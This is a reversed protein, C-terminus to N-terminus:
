QDGIWQQILNMRTSTIRTFANFSNWPHEGHVGNTHVGFIVDNASGSYVPSGSTGGFTDNKYFGKLEWLLRLRDHSKWQRGQPLRDIAYGQVTTEIDITDDMLPQIGFWGTRNGVDCDLKLAGLDFHRSELADAASVWGNLVYIKKARCIGFPAAGINRGPIIKFNTYQRGHVTGSHLCHAATLVTNKSVLAGTCVQEDGPITEFLIQVIARAPFQTTDQEFIREDPEFVSYPEFLDPDQARDGMEYHAYTARAELLQNQVEFSLNANDVTEGTGPNSRLQDPPRASRPTTNSGSEPELHKWERPDLLAYQTDQDFEGSETLGQERQFDRIAQAKDVGAETATGATGSTLLGSRNMISELLDENNEEITIGVEFGAAQKDLFVTKWAKNFWFIAVDNGHARPGNVLVRVRRRDNDDAVRNIGMATWYAIAAQMGENSQRALEPNQELLLGTERGRDRFNARGTLQIFGSGRYNWGDETDRGQNGLRNGYVWNAIERPKGAIRKATIRDITRRSFVRLLTAESYNMNEDIRRLGGTETMVQALFHAMRLRTNIGAAALEDEASIIANILENSALPSIKKIDDYTVLKEQAITTTINCALSLAFIFQCMAKNLNMMQEPNDNQALKKAEAFIDPRKNLESLIHVVAESTTEIAGILLGGSNLAKRFLQSGMKPKYLQVSFIEPQNLAEIVQNYSSILVCTPTIFFPHNSRLYECFPLPYIKLWDRILAWHENEDTNALISKFDPDPEVLPNIESNM